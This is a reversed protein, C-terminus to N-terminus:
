LIGLSKMLDHLQQEQADNLPLMPACCTDSIELGAIRMARKVTPIFPHAVEYLAMARDIYKQMEAMRFADNREVAKVWEACKEPILNSLGGIVGAGGSMVNHVLNDDYGSFVEFDPFEPTVTRIIASTHSMQTVTDKVGKINKHKRALRLVLDPSIDHVTREPFNYLFIDAPTSNAVLDFFAELAEQSFKFYYPSVVMVERLGKGYAYNALEIAEDAIMRSIGIFIRTRGKVYDAALDILQMQAEMTMSFFEGTSGMIVLGSVGGQILHDYVKKNGELDLTGDKKFITVVPTLFQAKM